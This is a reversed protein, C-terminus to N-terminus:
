GSVLSASGDSRPWVLLRVAFWLFSLAIGVVLSVVLGRWGNMREAEPDPPRVGPTPGSLLLFLLAGVGTERGIGLVWFWGWRNARWPVPGAVLLLLTAVAAVIGTVQLPTPLLSRRTAVDRDLLRRLDDQAYSTGEVELPLDARYPRLEGTRWLVEHPTAVVAHVRGHQVDDVLEDGHAERGVYGLSVLACVLLVAACVLRLAVM